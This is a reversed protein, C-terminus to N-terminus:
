TDFPAFRMRGDVGEVARRIEPEFRETGLYLFELHPLRLGRFFGFADLIVQRTKDVERGTVMIRVPQSEAAAMHTALDRALDSPGVTRHFAVFARDQFRGRSGVVLYDYDGGFAASAADIRAQTDDAPPTTAACGALILLMGLVIV